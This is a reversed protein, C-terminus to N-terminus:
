QICWRSMCVLASMDLKEKGNWATTSLPHKVTSKGNILTHLYWINLTVIKSHLEPIESSIGLITYM